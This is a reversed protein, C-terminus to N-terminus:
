CAGLLELNADLRLRSITGANQGAGAFSTLNEVTWAVPTLPGGGFMVGLRQIGWDFLVLASGLLAPVAAYALCRLSRHEVERAVERARGVRLTLAVTSTLCGTALLAVGVVTSAEFLPGASPTGGSAGGWGFPNNVYYYSPLPGFRFAEGFVALAAGGGVTWVVPRWRSSPLRGEPFLLAVLAVLAIVPFGLWSSAWAAQEGLPLGPRALLAYDAYAGALCRAGTLLGMGYLVWGVRYHPTRSVFLAGASSGALSVLCPVLLYLRGPREFPLLFAPTLSLLLLAAAVLALTSGWAMLVLRPGGGAHGSSLVTGQRGGRSLLTNGM